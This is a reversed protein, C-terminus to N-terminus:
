IKVFRKVAGGETRLLYTGPQLDSINLRQASQGTVVRAGTLNLIEYTGGAELGKITLVEMAPNPYLQLENIVEAEQNEIMLPAALEQIKVGNRSVQINVDGETLGVTGCTYLSVEDIYVKDYNSSADCRFRLRTNHSFNNTITVSESYFTGNNFDVGSVWSQAITWSNGNNTSYELMFDEGSEMSEPLYMFDVKIDTVASFSLKDSYFSANGGTDDRLRMCWNSANGGTAPEYNEYCDSGGDNWIGMSTEFGEYNYLTFCDGTGGGPNGGGTSCASDNVTFTMTQTDCLDGGLHDESYLVVTVTYTGDHEAWIWDSDYTEHNEVKTVTGGPGAVTIHMSEHDGSATVRVRSWGTSYDDGCLVDGDAIATLVNGSQDVLEYGTIAGTCPPNGGGPNGGGCGCLSISINDLFVEDYNGSADCRFRIVTQSSFNGSINVSETYFNGNVFDVGSAWQQVVTFSNGGDTSYELYFDEGAEMSLPLYMFDIVVDTACSFDQPSTYLSSNWGSNDRTRVCYNSGNGGSAPEYNLACDSGGDQWIGWGSEFDCYNFVECATTTQCSGDDCTATPDYNTANPDTCGSVVSPDIVIDYMCTTGNLVAIEDCALGTPLIPESGINTWICTAPDYQFNDWCNVVPPMAPQVVTITETTGLAKPCRTGTTSSVLVVETTSTLGTLPITVKSFPGDPGVLDITSNITGNFAVGDVTYLFDVTYAEDDSGRSTFCLNATGGCDVENLDVIMSVTKQTVRNELKNGLNDGNTICGNAATATVSNPVLTYTAGGALSFPGSCAKYFYGPNNSFFNDASTITVPISPVGEAIQYDITVDVFDSPPRDSNVSFCFQGEGDCGDDVVSIFIKKILGICPDAECSGDDCTAAPNYNLANPDTCGLVGSVTVTESIDLDEYRIICDGERFSVLSFIGSGPGPITYTQCGLGNNDTNFISGYFPAIDGDEIVAYNVNPEGSVCIELMEGVCLTNASVSLTPTVPNIGFCPDDECSGDDCTAAPNYNLANPNTCGVTNPDITITESVNDFTTPCPFRDALGDTYMFSILTLTTSTTLNSVPISVQIDGPNLGMQASGFPVTFTTGDLDYTLEGDFSGESTEYGTHILFTATGDCAIETSEATVFVPTTFENGATNPDSITVVESIGPYDIICDGSVFSVGIETIFPLDQIQSFCTNGNADTTIGADAALVGGVFAQLTYDANPEGNICVELIDGVCLNPNVVTLTPTVPNIGFCPDAECSGDDCVAAPDYNLANPDTCGLADVVLEYSLMINVCNNGADTVTVMYNGADAATVNTIDLTSTTSVVNGAADTWEFDLFSFGGISLSVDDGECYSAAGVITFPPLDVLEIERIQSGCENSAEVTYTGEALGTFTANQGSNVTVLDGTEIVKYTIPNAGISSVNISYTGGDSCQVGELTSFDLGDNDYTFTYIEDETCSAGCLDTSYLYSRNIRFDGTQTINVFSGSTQGNGNFRDQEEWANEEPNFWELTYPTAFGAGLRGGNAGTVELDFKGCGPIPDGVVFPYELVPVEFDFSAPDGCNDIVDITYLGPTLPGTNLVGNNNRTTICSSVDAPADPGSVITASQPTENWTFQMSTKESCHYYSRTISAFEFSNSGVDVTFSEQCCSGANLIGEYTGAVAPDAGCIKYDVYSPSPGNVGPICPETLTGSFFDGNPGVVDFAEVGKSNAVRLTFCGDCDIRNTVEVRNEALVTLSRTYVSGCVSVADVTVTYDQGCPVPILTIDNPIGTGGAYTQGNVTYTFDFFREEPYFSNGDGFAGVAVEGCNSGVNCPFFISFAENKLGEVTYELTTTNDCFDTFLLEYVGAPDVGILEEPNTGTAPQLTGMLTPGSLVEITKLQGQTVNVRIREECIRYSSLEVELPLFNDGITVTEPSTAVGDIFATVTYTGATLGSLSTGALNTLGGMGDDVTYSITAGAPAGAPPTWSLEGNQLCTADSSTLNIQAQLGATFIMALFLVGFSRLGTSWLDRATPCCGNSTFYNTSNQKM